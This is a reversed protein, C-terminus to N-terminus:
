GSKKKSAPKETEAQKELLEVIRELSKSNKESIMSERKAIFDDFVKAKKLKVVNRKAEYLEEFSSHEDLPKETESM